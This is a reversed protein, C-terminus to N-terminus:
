KPIRKVPHLVLKKRTAGVLTPTLKQVFPNSGGLLPPNPRPPWDSLPEPELSLKRRLRLSGDTVAKIQAVQQLRLVDRASLCLLIMELLEPINILKAGAISQQTPDM